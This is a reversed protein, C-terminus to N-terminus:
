RWTTSNHPMAHWASEASRSKRQTLDAKRFNEPSEISLQCIPFRYDLDVSIMRPSFPAASMLRLDGKQLFLFQRQFDLNGASASFRMPCSRVVLSARSPDGM